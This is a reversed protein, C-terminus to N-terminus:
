SHQGTILGLRLLGDVLDRRIQMAGLSFFSLSFPPTGAITLTMSSTERVNVWGATAAMIEFPKGLTSSALVGLFVFIFITIVLLRWRFGALAQLIWLPAIFMMSGAIFIVVAAFRDVTRNNWVHVTANDVSDAHKVPKGRFLPLLFKTDMTLWKEFVKRIMPQERSLVSILDDEQDVFRAEM